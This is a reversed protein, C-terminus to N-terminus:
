HRSEMTRVRQDFDTLKKTLTDLNNMLQEMFDAAHDLSGASNAAQTATAAAIGPRDKKFRESFGEEIDKVERSRRFADQLESSRKQKRMEDSTESMIDSPSKGIFGPPPAGGGEWWGHRAGGDPQQLPALPYSGLPAKYRKEGPATAATSAAIDGTAEGARFIGRPQADNLRKLAEHPSGADKVLARVEDETMGLRAGKAIAVGILAEAGRDQDSLKRRAEAGRAGPMETGAKIDQFSVTRGFGSISGTRMGPPKAPAVAGAVKPGLVDELGFAGIVQNNMWADRMAANGQARGAQRSQWARAQDFSTIPVTRSGHPGEFQMETPLGSDRLRKETINRRYQEHAAEAAQHAPSKGSQFESRRRAMENAYEKRRNAMEAEYPTMGFAPQKQEGAPAALARRAFGVAALGRWQKGFDTTSANFQQVAKRFEVVWKEQDKPITSRNISESLHRLEKALEDPSVRREAIRQEAASRMSQAQNRLWDSSALGGSQMGLGRQARRVVNKPVVLEGPELLAPVRDGSGVGPVLGGHQRQLWPLGWGGSPVGGYNM